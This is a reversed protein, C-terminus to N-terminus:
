ILADADGTMAAMTATMVTVTSEAAEAKPEVATYPSASRGTRTRSQQFETRRGVPGRSDRGGAAGGHARQVGGGDGGGGGCLDGHPGPRAEAGVAARVTAAGGASGGGGGGCSAIIIVAPLILYLNSIKSM